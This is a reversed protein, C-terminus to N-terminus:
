EYRSCMSMWSTVMSIFKIAIKSSFFGSFQIIVMSPVRVECKEASVRMQVNYLNSTDDNFCKAIIRMMYTTALGSHLSWPHWASHDGEGYSASTDDDEFKKLGLSRNKNEM